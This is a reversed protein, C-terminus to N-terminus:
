SIRDFPTGTSNNKLFIFWAHAFAIITLVYVFIFYRIDLIVQQFMRIYYGTTRFIRFFYLFRIWMTIAAFAYIARVAKGRSAYTEDGVLTSDEINFRGILIEAVIISSYLCVDM